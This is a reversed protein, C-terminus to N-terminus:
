SYHKGGLGSRKFHNGSSREQKHQLDHAWKGNVQLYLALRGPGCRHRLVLHPQRGRDTIVAKTLKIGSAAGADILDVLEIGPNETSSLMPNPRSVTLKPFPASPLPGTTFTQDGTTETGTRNYCQYQSRMHYTTSAKMGAVLINAIFGQTPYWATSRGYSTDLGFEVM